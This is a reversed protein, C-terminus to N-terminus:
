LRGGIPKYNQKDSSVPEKENSCHRRGETAATHNDRFVWCYGQLQQWSKHLFESM